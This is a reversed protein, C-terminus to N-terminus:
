NRTHHRSIHKQTIERMLNMTHNCLHIADTVCWRFYFVCGIGTDFNYIIHEQKDIVLAHCVWELCVPYSNPNKKGYKISACENSRYDSTELAKMMKDHTATIRNNKKREQRDM